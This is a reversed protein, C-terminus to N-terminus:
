NIIFSNIDLVISYHLHPGTSLGSGRRNKVGGSWGIVEGSKVYVGEKIATYSLHAYISKTGDYHQIEILGGLTPHGRYRAGGNYYSPYVTKVYGDKTAYVPTKDPCAIDIANHYTDNTVSGGSDKDVLGNRFGQDSSINYMYKDPLPNSFKYISKCPILQVAYDSENYNYNTSEDKNIENVSTDEEVKSFLNCATISLTICTGLIIGKLIRSFKRLM